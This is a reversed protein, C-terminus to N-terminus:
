RPAEGPGGTAPLAGRSGQGSSRAHRGRAPDAERQPHPEAILTGHLVGIQCRFEHTGPPLDPLEITVDQHAPLEASIGLDPFVVHQSCPATEERRFILRVPRHATIYVEAPDYGGNVHIHRTQGARCARAPSRPSILALGSGLPIFTTSVEKEQPTGSM